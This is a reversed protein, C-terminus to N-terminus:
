VEDPIKCPLSRPTWTSPGDEMVKGPTCLCPAPDSAFCGPSCIEFTARFHSATAPTTPLPKFGQAVICAEPTDEYKFKLFFHFKSNREYNDSEKFFIIKIELWSIRRQEFHGIWQFRHLKVLFTSEM